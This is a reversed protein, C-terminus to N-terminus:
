YTVRLPCIRSNWMSAVVDANNLSSMLTATVDTVTYSPLAFHKAILGTGNTRCAVAFINDNDCAVGLWKVANTDGIPNVTLTQLASGDYDCVELIADDNALPRVIKSENFCTYAGFSRATQLGSAFATFAVEGTAPDLSWFGEDGTDSNGFDAYLLGNVGSWQFASVFQVTLPDSESFATLLQLLDNYSSPTATGTSLEAFEPLAIFAPDSGDLGKAFQEYVTGSLDLPGARVSFDSANIVYTSRGSGPLQVIVKSDIAAFAQAQAWAQATADYVQQVTGNWLARAYKKDAVRLFLDGGAAAAFTFATLKRFPNKLRLNTNPM